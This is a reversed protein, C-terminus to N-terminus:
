QSGGNSSMLRTGLITELLALALRNAYRAQILNAEAQSLDDQAALLDLVTTAGAQYRAEQVRYNERALGLAEVELDVAARATEYGDYAATVDRLAARELDARFARAVDLRARSQIIAMEREGNNWLTFSFNLTISSVNRASPFFQTDFRTHAGVLNVTPFYAGRRGRLEAQASRETARAVRYAPGQDLAQTIAADLTLPLEAPAEDGVPAAAAPGAIGVRRGFGLRVVRLQSEERLLSVRARTLELRVTLSDSQVAAGSVVRARALRLQEEARTARGQAVRLLEAEALVAYYAAETVMAALFRQQVETATAAELEAQTRGLDMLKRVSFLELHAALQGTVSTSSPTLTGINFFKDSYKTLDMTATVSPVFFALRAATRAWEAESVSGLAAVYSPNLKVAAQLAEALTFVPVSDAAPNVIAPRPLRCDDITLRCDAMALQLLLAIM